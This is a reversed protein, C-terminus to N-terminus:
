RENEDKNKPSQWKEVFNKTEEQIDPRNFYEDLNTIESNNKPM